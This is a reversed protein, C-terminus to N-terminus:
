QYIVYKSIENTQADELDVRYKEIADELSLGRWVWRVITAYQFHTMDEMSIDLKQETAYQKTESLTKSSYADIGHTHLALYDQGTHEKKQYFALIAEKCKATVGDPINPVYCNTVTKIRECANEKQCCLIPKNDLCFPQKKQEGYLNLVDEKKRQLVIKKSKM